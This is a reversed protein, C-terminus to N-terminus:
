INKLKTRKIANKISKVEKKITEYKYQDDSELLSMLDKLMSAVEGSHHEDHIMNEKEGPDKDLDFFYAPEIAGNATCILKRHVTRLSVLSDVSNWGWEYKKSMEVAYRNEEVLQAHYTESYADVPFEVDREGKLVGSLDMGDIPGRFSKGIFGLITPAIDITRTLGEITKNSISSGFFILPVRLQVDYLETEHFHIGVKEGRSNYVYPYGHEGEMKDGHDSTIALLHDGEKLREHLRRLHIDQNRIEEMYRQRRKGEKDSRSTFHADFSHIFIYNDGSRNSDLQEIAHDVLRNIPNFIHRGETTDEISYTTIYSDFGRAFSRHTLTWGGILAATIFGSRGLVEQLMEGEVGSESVWRVGHNFPYLGTFMSSHSTTTHSAQSICYKFIIGQHLASKMFPTNNIGTYCGIYDPRVCDLSVLVIDM